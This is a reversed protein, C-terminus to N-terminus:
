KYHSFSTCTHRNRTFQVCCERMCVIGVGECMWADCAWDFPVSAALAVVTLSSVFLFLLYLDMAYSWAYKQRSSYRLRQHRHSVSRKGSRHWESVVFGDLEITFHNWYRKYSYAYAKCQTRGVFRRISSDVFKSALHWGFTIQNRGFITCQMCWDGNTIVWYWWVWLNKDNPQHPAVVVVFYTRNWSSAPLWRLRENRRHVVSWTRFTLPSVRRRRVNRWTLDILKASHWRCRRVNQKNNQVCWKSLWEYAVCSM